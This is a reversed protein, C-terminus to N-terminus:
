ESASINRLQSFSDKINHHFDIMQELQKLTSPNLDEHQTTDKIHM